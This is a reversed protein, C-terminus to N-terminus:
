RLEARDLALGPANTLQRVVEAASGRDVRANLAAIVAEARAEVALAGLAALDVVLRGRGSPGLDLYVEAAAVNPIKRM